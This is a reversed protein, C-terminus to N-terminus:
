SASRATRTADFPTGTLSALFRQWSHRDQLLGRAAAARQRATVPQDLADTLAAVVLEPSTTEVPWGTESTILEGIGGTRTAVIPLGRAAIELLVNPLGDWLSTYLFVDAEGFPLRATSSFGGRFRVNAPLDAAWDRHHPDPTGYALFRTEPM